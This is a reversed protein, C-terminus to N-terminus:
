REQRQRVGGDTVYFKFGVIAAADAITLVNSM